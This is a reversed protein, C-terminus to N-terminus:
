EFVAALQATDVGEKVARLEHYTAIVVVAYVAGWIADAMVQGVSALVGGADAMEDLTDFMVGVIATPVLALLLLGFIKWRHGKTLQASREMSSFPGLREVVCVPAAVFLMTVVIVGPVLLLAFGLAALVMASIALGIVPIIRRSGVRLSEVLSVPQGRVAQFAGYIVMAQSIRGMMDGVLAGALILGRSHGPNAFWVGPLSAVATVAFFPFFNRSLVRWARNLVAGVRFEAEPFRGVQATMETM